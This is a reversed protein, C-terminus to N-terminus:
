YILYIALPYAFMCVVFAVAWLVHVLKFQWQTRGDLWARMQMRTAMLLTLCSVAIWTIPIGFQEVLLIWSLAIVLTILPAAAVTLWGNSMAQAQWQGFAYGVLMVVMFAMEASRVERIAQAHTMRGPAAFWASLYPLLLVLAVIWFGLGFLQRSKWITSPAVGKDALFQKSQHPEDAVFAASGWLVGGLAVLWMWPGQIVTARVNWDAFVFGIIAFVGGLLYLTRHQTFQHWRLAIAVSPAERQLYPGSWVRSRTLRPLWPPIWGLNAPQAKLASLGQQWTAYGALGVLVCYVVLAIVAFLTDVNQLGKYSVAISAIGVSVWVAIWPVPALVLLRPLWQSTSRARWAVCIGVFLLYATHLVFMFGVMLDSMRLASPKAIERWDEWLLLAALGLCIGWVVVWGSIAIVFKAKLKESGTAPLSSYWDFTRQQHEAGVLMAGAGLAYVLPMLLLIGVEFAHLGEVYEDRHFWHKMAAAIALASMAIILILLLPQLLRLEKWLLARQRLVASM